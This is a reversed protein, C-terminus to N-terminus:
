LHIIHNFLAIHDCPYEQFHWLPFAAEVLLKVYVHACLANKWPFSFFFLMKKRKNNEKKSFNSKEGRGLSPCFSILRIGEAKSETM